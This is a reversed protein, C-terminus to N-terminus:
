LQSTIENSLKIFGVNEHVWNVYALDTKLLEGWTFNEFKYKGFKVVDNINAIPIVKEKPPEQSDLQTHLVLDTINIVDEDEIRMIPVQQIVGVRNILVEMFYLKNFILLIKGHMTLGSYMCDFEKDANEKLFTLLNKM